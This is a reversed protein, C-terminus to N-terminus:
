LDAPDIEISEANLEKLTAALEKLIAQLTTPNELADASLEIEKSLGWNQRFGHDEVLIQGLTTNKELEILPIIEVITRGSEPDVLGVNFYYDDIEGFLCTKLSQGISNAGVAGDRFELAKFAPKKFLRKRDALSNYNTSISAFAIITAFGAAYVLSLPLRELLMDMAFGHDLFTPIFTLPLIIVVSVLWGKILSKKDAIILRKLDDIM